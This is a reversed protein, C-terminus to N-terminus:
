LYAPTAGDSPDKKTKAGKNKADAVDRRIDELNDDLERITTLNTATVGFKGVEYMNVM